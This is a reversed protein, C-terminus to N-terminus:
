PPSVRTINVGSVVGNIVTVTATYTAVMPMMGIKNCIFSFTFMYGFPIRLQEVGTNVLTHCDDVPYPSSGMVVNRAIYLAEQMGVGEGYPLYEEETPFTTPEYYPTPVPYASSVVQPAATVPAAATFQQGKIFSYLGFGGIFLAVLLLLTNEDKM